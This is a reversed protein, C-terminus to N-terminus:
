PKHHSGHNQVLSSITTSLFQFIVKALNRTEICAGHLWVRTSRTFISPQIDDTSVMIRAPLSMTIYAQNGKTRM